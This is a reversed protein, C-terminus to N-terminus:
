RLSFHFDEWKIIMFCIMGERRNWTAITPLQGSKGLSIHVLSFIFKNVQCEIKGERHVICEASAHCPNPQGNGCAREPKCGRRQDGVYGTKCPGCRFSGQPGVSSASGDYIM